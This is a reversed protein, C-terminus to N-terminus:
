RGYLQRISVPQMNIGTGGRSPPGPPAPGRFLSGLSAALALKDATSMDEFMGGKGGGEVPTEPLMPNETIDPTEIKEIPEQPLAIPAQGASGQGSVEAVAQNMKSVPDSTISGSPLGQEMLWAAKEQDMPVETGTKATDTGLTHAMDIGPKQQGGQASAQALAGQKSQEAAAMGGVATIIAAIIAPAIMYQQSAQEALYQLDM